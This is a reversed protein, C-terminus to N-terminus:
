YGHCIRNIQLLHKNYRHLSVFYAASLDKFYNM